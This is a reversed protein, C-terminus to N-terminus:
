ETALIEDEIADIYLYNIPANKLAFEWALHFELANSNTSSPLPYIVLDTASIESNASTQYQQKSGSSDTFTIVKGRIHTIADESKALPIVAAIAPQLKEADPICTSSVNLLRRDATFQIEL